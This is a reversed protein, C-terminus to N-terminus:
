SPARVAVTLEVEVPAGRPLRAVGIASRTHRGTDGFLEVLVRSAGDAVAPLDDFEPTAAVFVTMTLVREVADM